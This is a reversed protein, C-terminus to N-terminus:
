WDHQHSIFLMKFFQSTNYQGHLSRGQQIQDEIYGPSLEKDRYETGVRGQATALAM